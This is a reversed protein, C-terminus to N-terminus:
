TDPTKFPEVQMLVAAKHENDFGKGIFDATECRYFRGSGAPVEVVDQHTTSSRGRIDTTAELLLTMTSVIIGASGTGGTSMTSVRRGWALNCIAGTVRAPGVTPFIPGTWINCTLNYVPQIFPM